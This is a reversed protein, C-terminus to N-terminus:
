EACTCNFEAELLQNCQFTKNDNVVELDSFLGNKTTYSIEQGNKFYARGGLDESILKGEAKYSDIIGDTPGEAHDQPIEIPLVEGSEKISFVKLRKMPPTGFDYDTELKLQRRSGDPMSIETATWDESRVAVAGWDTQLAAELDNLNPQGVESSSAQVGLCENLQGLTWQFRQRVDEESMTKAANPPPEAQTKAPAPPPPPPPEPTEAEPEDAQEILEAVAPSIEPTEAQESSSPSIWWGVGILFVIATLGLFFKHDKFAM